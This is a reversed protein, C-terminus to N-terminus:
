MCLYMPWGPMPPLCTGPAACLDNAPSCPAGLPLTGAPQVGGDDQGYTGAKCMVTCAKNKEVGLDKVCASVCQGLNKFQQAATATLPLAVLVAVSVVAFIKKAM